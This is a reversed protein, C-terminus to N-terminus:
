GFGFSEPLLRTLKLRSVLASYIPACVLTFVLTGTFLTQLQDVGFVTAMADRVPRLIYYSGFLVFNCLFALVVARLEHHEIQAVFNALRL